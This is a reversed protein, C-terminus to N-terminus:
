WVKGISRLSTPQLWWVVTSVVAKIAETKGRELFGECRKKQYYRGNSRLCPPNELVGAIEIQQNSSTDVVPQVKGNM